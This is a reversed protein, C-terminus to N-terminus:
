LLSIAGTLHVVQLCRHGDVRGGSCCEWLDGSAVRRRLFLTLTAHSAHMSTHSASVADIFQPEAGESRSQSLQLRRFRVAASSCRPTSLQCGHVHVRTLFGGDVAHILPSPRPGYTELSAGVTATPPFNTPAGFVGKKTLFPRRGSMPARRPLSLPALAACVSCRSFFHDL